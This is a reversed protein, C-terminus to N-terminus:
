CYYSKENIGRHSNRYENPTLNYKIKFLKSFYPASSFGIDLCIDTISKHTTTLLMRGEEMRKNMLYQIPSTGIQKKFSHILYYKSFFTKQALDDLTINQNFHLDIYRKIFACEATLNQSPKEIDKLKTIRIILVLVQNILAQALVENYLKQNELESLTLSFLSKLKLRDDGNHVNQIYLENIPLSSQDDQSLSNNYIDFYINEIGFVFYELSNSEKSYETHSIYPNIIIIDGEKINFSQSDTKIQGEGSIIFMIETFSHFHLKNNWDNDYKSWTLYILNYNDFLKKASQFSKNTYGM